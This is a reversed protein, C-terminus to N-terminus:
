SRPPPARLRARAQAAWLGFAYLQKPIGVGAEDFQQIHGEHSDLRRWSHQSSDGETPRIRIAVQVNQSASGAGAPAPTAAAAAAAEPPPALPAPKPATASSM